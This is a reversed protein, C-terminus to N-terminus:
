NMKIQVNFAAANVVGFRLEFDRVGFRERLSTMRRSVPKFRTMDNKQRKQDQGIQKWKKQRFALRAFRFFAFKDPHHRVNPRIVSVPIADLMIVNPHIFNVPIANLIIGNWWIVSVPIANLVIANPRIVSVPIANFMIVNPLIVSVPIGNLMIVNPLIVSVPIGNLVIVNLLIDSVLIANFMIVTQYSANQHIVIFPMLM